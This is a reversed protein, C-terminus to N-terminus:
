NRKNAYILTWHFIIIVRDYEAAMQRFVSKIQELFQSSRNSPWKWQDGLWSSIMESFRNLHGNMRDLWLTFSNNEKTLPELLRDWTTKFSAVFETTYSEFSFDKFVVSLLNVAVKAFFANSNYGDIINQKMREGDQKLKEIEDMFNDLTLHLVNMVDDAIIMISGTSESFGHRPFADQWLQATLYVSNRASNYRDNLRAYWDKPWQTKSTILRSHNLRFAFDFFKFRDNETQDYVEM